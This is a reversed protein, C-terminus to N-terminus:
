RGRRVRRGAALLGSVPATRRSAFRGGRGTALLDPRGPDTEPRRAAAAETRASSRELAALPPPAGGLDAPGGDMDPPAASPNSYSRM